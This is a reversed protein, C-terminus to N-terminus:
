GVIQTAFVSTCPADNVLLALSFAGSGCGLDLVRFTERAGLFDQARVTPNVARWPLGNLVHLVRFLNRPLFYFQYGGIRHHIPNRARGFEEERGTYAEHLAMVEGALALWANRQASEGQTAPRPERAPRWGQRTWRFRAFFVEELAM